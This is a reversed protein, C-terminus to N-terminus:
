CSPEHKPTRCLPDGNVTYFNFKNEQWASWGYENGPCPDDGIKLVTIEGYIGENYDTGAIEYGHELCFAVLKYVFEQETM